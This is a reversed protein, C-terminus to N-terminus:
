VLRYSWKPSVASVPQFPFGKPEAESYGVHRGLRMETGRCTEQSRMDPVYGTLRRLWRSSDGHPGGTGLPRKMEPTCVALASYASMDVGVLTPISTGQATHTRIGQCSLRGRNLRCDAILGEKTPPYTQDFVHNGLSFFVPHGDICESPQVVHPHHGVILDAGQQILWRAQAPQGAGPLGQYEVGWHISVVVLDATERATRLKQSIEPSPIRQVRGDAAPILTVSILAIRADGVRAFQPSNEFDVPVLSEQTLLNRTHERGASGLDGAHNNELTMGHFGALKLFEVLSDPSAFCPRASELCDSPSGFAGELNGSVWQANHFLDTFRAWPSVRRHELESGVYRSLLIDGTFLLRASHPQARICVVIAGFAATLLILKFRIL